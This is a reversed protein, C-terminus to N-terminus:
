RGPKAALAALCFGNRPVAQGPERRLGWGPTVTKALAFIFKYFSLGADCWLHLFVGVEMDEACPV